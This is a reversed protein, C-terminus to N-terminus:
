INSGTTRYKLASDSDELPDAMAYVASSSFCVFSTLATIRLFNYMQVSM